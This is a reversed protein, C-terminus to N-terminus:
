LGEETTEQGPSKKSKREAGSEIVPKEAYDITLLIGACDRSWFLERYSSPCGEQYFHRQAQL